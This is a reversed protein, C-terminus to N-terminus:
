QLSIDSQYIWTLAIVSFHHVSRLEDIQQKLQSQLSLAREKKQEHEQKQHEEEALQMAEREKMAELQEREAKEREERKEQVQKVWAERVFHSHQKRELQFNM